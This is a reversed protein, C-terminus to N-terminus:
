RLAGSELELALGASAAELLQELYNARTELAERRVQLWQTLPLYGAEYGSRAFREAEELRPLGDQDLVRVSEELLRLSEWLLRIRNETGIRGFQYEFGAEAARGRATMSAGQGRDVLPLPVGIGLRLINAGEDRQYGARVALDPWKLAAAFDVDAQARRLEAALALLDPRDPARRLLVELEFRGRERLDGRIALHRDPPWGLLARVDALAAARAARAALVESSARAVELSAIQIDFAPVQGARERAQATSLLERAIRDREEALRAREEEFLIRYFSRSVEFLVVRAADSARANEAEVGATASAVRSSRKGGTALPVSLSVDYNATADGRDIRPGADVDLVPNGPLAYSASKLIGRAEDIRAQAALVAPASRRAIDRVEELTLGAEQPDGCRAPDPWLAAFLAFASPLCFM